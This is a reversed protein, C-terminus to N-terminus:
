RPEEGSSGCRLAARIRILSSAAPGAPLLLLYHADPRESHATPLMEKPISMGSAWIGAKPALATHENPCAKVRPQIPGPVQSISAGARQSFKPSGAERLIMFLGNVVM